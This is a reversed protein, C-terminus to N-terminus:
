GQLQEPSQWEFRFFEGLVSGLVPKDPSIDYLHYAARNMFTIVNNNDIMVVADQVQELIFALYHVRDELEKEESLNRCTESLSRILGARSVMILTMIWLVVVSGSRVIVIHLMPVPSSPYFSGAVLLVSCVTAVTFFRPPATESPLVVLALFYLLANGYGSPLLLDFVFACIIIAFAPIM